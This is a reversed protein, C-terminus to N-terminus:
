VTVSLFCVYAFAGVFATVIWLFISLGGSAFFWRFLRPVPKGEAMSRNTWDVLLLLGGALLGLLGGGLAYYIRPYGGAEVEAYARMGLAVGVAVAMGMNRATTLVSTGSM